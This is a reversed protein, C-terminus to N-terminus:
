YHTLANIDDFKDFIVIIYIVEINILIRMLIM